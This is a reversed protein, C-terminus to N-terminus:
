SPRRARSGEQLAFVAFLISALGRPGFWTLFAVAERDLGAGLLSLAAPIGRVATLSLVAYLGIPPTLDELAPGVLIAGFLLFTVLALLHSQDEAFDAVHPGQDRAVHGFALGATFAAIFGNGGVTEAASFAGVGLALGYGVQRAAFGVWHGAPQLETGSAALAAFLMVIPLVIGDNVGSETALTERLRAPVQEDEVVAQGLAADTPALVAAVLAAGWISLDKLLAAGVATGAAITLPLGQGGLMAGATVFLMPGTM